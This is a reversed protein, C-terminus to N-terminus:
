IHFVLYFLLFFLQLFQTIFHFQLIGTVLFHLIIVVPLVNLKAISDQQSVNECVEEEDDLGIQNSASFAFHLHVKRLKRFLCNQTENRGLVDFIDDRLQDDM